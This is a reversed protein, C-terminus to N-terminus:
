TKLFRWLSIVSGIFGFGMGFLLIIIVAQYPLLDLNVGFLLKLDNGFNYEILGKAAALVGVAIVAGIGGVLVGEIIFPVKIFMPTAGVLRMEEIEDTRTQITLQITNSVILLTSLIIVVGFLMGGFRVMSVLVSFKKIWEGGYQLDEISGIVRLRETVSKVGASNQFADNLKIIFSAPLPNGDLGALISREGALGKDLSALAADKSIYGVERVEPYRKIENELAKVSEESVGDKLYAAVELRNGLREVLLNANMIGVIFGGFLTLSLAINVTALLNILYANRMGTVSKSILSLIKM